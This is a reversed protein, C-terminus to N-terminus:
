SHFLCEAEKPDKPEKQQIKMTTVTANPEVDIIKKGRDNGKNPKSKSDSRADSKFDKL